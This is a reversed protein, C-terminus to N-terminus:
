KTSRSFHQLILIQNCFDANICGLVLGGFNASAALLRPGGAPSAKALDGAGEERRLHSPDVVERSGRFSSNQFYGSPLCGWSSDRGDLANMINSPVM